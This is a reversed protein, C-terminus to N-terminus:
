ANSPGIMHGWIDRDSLTPPLSLLENDSSPTGRAETNAEGWGGGGGSWM